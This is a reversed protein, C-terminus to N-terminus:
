SKFDLKLGLGAFTFELFKLTEPISPVPMNQGKYIAEQVKQRGYVDDSKLTLMERMNYAAGHSELAWGEMEGFRQGGGRSRGGIPQQTKLAYPGTSRAHMKDRVLHNLKLMYISGCTVKQDFKEGTLGSYLAKRGFPPLGAQGLKENIQEVSPGEFIPSEYKQGLKSGAGGLVAEKAQGINMRSPLGLPNLIIEIRRGDEDFPMDEEPVIKSIVGKNGHRGSLKDGVEIKCKKALYVKAQKLVGLPLSSGAEKQRKEKRYHRIISDHARQYSDVLFAIKEDEAENTWAYSSVAHHYLENLHDEESHDPFIKEAIVAKSLEQKPALLDDGDSTKLNSVEYPKVLTALLDIARERLAALQKLTDERLIEVQEKNKEIVKSDTEMGHLIKTHIVTGECAFPFKFSTNEVNHALSGFIARMLQSVSSKDDKSSPTLKAVGIDGSKIETGVRVIGNEDLNALAEEKVNPIDKTFEEKGLKTNYLNVEFVQIHMSTLKDQKLVSDSIVISDEFNYGEHAMFAVYLNTGLALEGDKVAYGETLYDGKKVQQGKAVIPKQHICTGQSGGKLRTITYSKEREELCLHELDEPVKKTIVIKKADVYTVIGDEEAILMVRSDRAARREHGTGVIPAEAKVLPVAQRQMNSGLTARTADTNEIFPILSTSISFCQDHRVAMYTAKEKPLRAFDGRENRVSLQGAVIEGQEKVKEVAEAIVEGEEQEATLYELKKADVVGDDIKRYPTQLFRLPNVQAYNAFHGILGINLGEPTSTACIRGFHSGHVDRVSFGARERKISPGLKTARRKHEVGSLPNTDDLLQSVADQTFFAHLSNNISHNHVVDSPSLDESSRTNLAERVNHMMLKVGKQLVQELLDGSLFVTRNALSDIDESQYEGQILAPFKKITAVLDERTLQLNDEPISLGLKKNLAHRGIKGLLVNKPSFLLEQVFDYAVQPDSPNRVRFQHYILEMAEKESNTDDQQLTNYIFAFPHDEIGKQVITVEKRGAQLVKEINEENLVSNSPLIMKHREVPIIEGTEEDVFEETWFGVLKEALIAGKHKELSSRTAKITTGLDFLKLIDSDRSYGMARLLVTALFKRRRDIYAYFVNHPDLYFERWTGISPVIKAAYTNAGSVHKNKAFFVGDSRQLQAIIARETGRYIFSGQPTICPLDTLYVEEESVKTEGPDKCTLRLQIKLPAAYSVGHEICDDPSYFPAGLTYGLFELNFGGKISIAPFKEAFIEYLKTTKKDNPGVVQSPQFLDRCSKLQLDLLDPYHAAFPLQSFQIRKQSKSPM